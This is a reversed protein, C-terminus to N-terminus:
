NLNYSLPFSTELTSGGDHDPASVKVVLTGTSAACGSSPPALALTFVTLGPIRANLAPAASLVTHSGGFAITVGDSNAAKSIQVQTDAPLVNGKFDPIYLGITQPGGSCSLNIGALNAYPAMAAVPVPTAPHDSSFIFTAQQFVNLSKVSSCGAFSSACLSGNFKGDPGNYTGDNNFDVLQDVGQTFMGDEDVDIFAEGQDSSHGNIDVLENAQDAVINNNKDVFSEEGIAYAVIHVRGNAPRPNQSSLTISCQSNTTTCSGQTGNGIRGGDTIFNIATGDPIPNNFHDALRITIASTAGDYGWANINYREASLSMSDQDPFGTSISLLSSQSSLAGSTAIVRVPTPQNGAEVTASVLGNSDTIATVQGQGNANALKVGGVQVDLTFVIPQGAIGQNNNDVLKFQVQATEPRSASGYGKLTIIGNAPTLAQFQLSSAAPPAVSISVSKSVGATTATITDQGSCGKDTYSVRAVGSSDTLASGDVVAKPTSGGACVSTFSVVQNAVPTGDTLLISATVATTAYAGIAANGVTLSSIQLASAGIEYVMSGSATVKTDGVSYTATAVLTGVQSSAAISAVSLTTSAKGSADSIRSKPQALALSDDTSFAVVAGPVPNNEADLVTATITAPASLSLAAQSPSIVM